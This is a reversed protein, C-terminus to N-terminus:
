GLFFCYVNKSIFLIVFERFDIIMFCYSFEVCFISYGKSYMPAVVVSDCSVFSPIAQVIGIIFTFESSIDGKSIVDFLGPLYWISSNTYILYFIVLRIILSWVM